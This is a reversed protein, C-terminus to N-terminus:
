RMPFEKIIFYYGNAQKEIMISLGYLNKALFDNAVESYVGVRGENKLEGSIEAKTSKMSYGYGKGNKLAYFYDVIEAESIDYASFYREYVIDEENKEVKTLRFDIKVLAVYGFEQTKVHTAKFFYFGIMCFIGVAVIWKWHKKM